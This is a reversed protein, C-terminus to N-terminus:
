LIFDSTIWFLQWIESGAQLNTKAVFCDIASVIRNQSVLDFTRLIRRASGRGLKLSDM